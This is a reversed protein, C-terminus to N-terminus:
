TRRLTLIASWGVNGSTDIARVRIRHKGLPLSAVDESWTFYRGPLDAVLKNDIFLAVNAVAVNDTAKGTIVILGSRYKSNNKPKSIAVVPKQRDVFNKIMVQIKAQATVGSSNAALATLMHTGEKAKRTNWTVVFPSKSSTGVLTGDVYYRVVKPVGSSANVALNLLGKVTVGAQPSRFAIGFANSTSNLTISTRYKELLHAQDPNSVSAVATLTHSGASLPARLFVTIETGMYSPDFSSVEAGDLQVSVHDVGEPWLALQLPIATGTIQASNAPSVFQIDAGATLNVAVPASVGLNGSADLAKVVLSHTGLSTHATTWDLTFPAQWSTRALQGDVWLQAIIVSRNDTLSTAVPVVGAVSDGNHLGVIAASPAKQDPSPGAWYDIKSAIQLQSVANFGSGLGSMISHLSTRYWNDIGAGLFYEDPAVLSSWAVAPPTGAYVNGEEKGYDLGHVKNDIPGTTGYSYEDYLRGFTHGFEHVFVEGMQPGNYSVAEVGGAGGYVPDNVLVGIVDTPVASAQVISTTLSSDVYLLRDLGPDRKSGLSVTNDVDHIQIQDARSKFPEYSLLASSVRQVDNHFQGMDTYKDGIFTIDLVGDGPHGISLLSRAELTDFVPSLGLHRRSVVSDFTM